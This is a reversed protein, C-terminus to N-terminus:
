CNYRIVESGFKSKNAKSDNQSYKDEHSVLDEGGQSLALGSGMANTIVRKMGGRPVFDPWAKDVSKIFASVERTM